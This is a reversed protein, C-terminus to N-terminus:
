KAVKGRGTSKSTAALQEAVKKSVSYMGERNLNRSFDTNPYLIPPAGLPQAKDAKEILAKHLVDRMPGAGGGYVYVAGISGGTYRLVEEFERVIKTAFVSHYVAVEEIVKAHKARNTPDPDSQIFVELDKRTDFGNLAGRVIDLVYGYGLMLTRSNNADFQGDRYVPFNVTGEGIDIGLVNRSAFIDAASVGELPQGMRRTDDLLAQSMAEGKDRISFIASAGEAMVRASHIDVVVTVSQDFNRVRVTHRGELERAYSQEEAYWEDIPLAVVVLTRAEIQDEPLKGEVRVYDRLAKSAIAGLLLIRGLSQQAKSEGKGTTFEMRDVSDTYMAQTGLVHRFDDDVLSTEFSLDARNYFDDACVNAAEAAPNPKRPPGIVTAAVSPMDIEDIHGDHGRLVGKVYGNGVDIGGRIDMKISM